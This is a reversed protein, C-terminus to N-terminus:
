QKSVIMPILHKHNLAIIMHCFPILGVFDGAIINLCGPKEGPRQDLLWSKIPEWNKLSLTRLSEQPHTTIYGRDATLNLGAVFFSGPRGKTKQWEIYCLLGEASRQNAWWYPIPPWLDEHREVAQDDYSLFVQYKLAWLIRLTLTAMRPCLKSGFTRKLLHIFTEHLKESLGEFQRCALIVIEKPHSDLWTAIEQLTDLVTLYTYIVHTFYLDDSPDNPKHAIRLDFYRIGAKLQEVVSKEQTTAWRYIAPRTFCYFLKDLVRFTDSESRVLPSTIDLCYSMADHSGPIALNFISTDWLEEPMRSMWDECNTENECREM